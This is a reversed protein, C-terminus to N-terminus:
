LHFAHTNVIKTIYPLSNLKRMQIFTKEGMLYPNIVTNLEFSIRHSFM